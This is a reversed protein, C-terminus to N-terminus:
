LRALTTGDIDIWAERSGKMERFLLGWDEQPVHVLKCTNQSVWSFPLQPEWEEAHLSESLGRTNWFASEKQGESQRTEWLRSGKLIM